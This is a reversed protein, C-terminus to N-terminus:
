AGPDTGPVTVAVAPEQASPAWRIPDYNFSLRVENYSGGTFNTSLQSSVEDHPTRQEYEQSGLPFVGLSLADFRDLNANSDRQRHYSVSLRTGGFLLADVRAFLNTLPNRLTVSRSTGPTLGWQELTRAFRGVTASDTPLQFASNLPQGVYPGPDIVDVRHLEAAVFFHVRDRIIPGGASAGIQWQQYSASGLERFVPAFAQDRFDVFASGHLENTGSRTVANIMAGAFGGWRVDFPAILIQYEQVADQAATGAPNGGFLSRNPAGDVSIANFSRNVGDASIGFLTNVRSDIQVLDYINRNATPLRHLLSDTLTSQAGTQVTRLAGDHQSAIVIAPLVVTALTLVVDGQLQQGISLSFDPLTDSRYGLQRAVMQYPGGPQLGFAAYRGDNVRSHVIEGTVRNAISIEAGDLAAGESDTVRGRISATTPGQAAVSSSLLLHAACLAPWRGIFHM